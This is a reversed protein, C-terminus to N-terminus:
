EVWDRKGDCRILHHKKCRPCEYEGITYIIGEKVIMEKPEVAKKAREIIGKPLTPALEPAKEIAERIFEPTRLLERKIQKEIKPKEEAVVEEKLREVFNEGYRAQVSVKDLELAQIASVKEPNYHSREEDHHQQRQLFEPAIEHRIYDESIAGRLSEIVAELVENQPAGHGDSRQAGVVNLKKVDRYYKALNNIIDKKETRAEHANRRSFNLHARAKWYDEDTKIEERIEVRWKADTETRHLGDVIRGQKDKIIPLLQGISKESAGLDYEESM